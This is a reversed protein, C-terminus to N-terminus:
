PGPKFLEAVPLYQHWRRGFLLLLALVGAASVLVGAALDPVGLLSVIVAAGAIALVSLGVRLLERERVPQLGDLSSPSLLTGVNGATYQEAVTALLGALEELADHSAGTDLRSEAVRLRAVVQGAHRRLESRRPSLHPVTGRTRYAKLVGHEVIRLAASVAQMREARRPGGARHAEACAKIAEACLVVLVSRGASVYAERTAGATFALLLGWAYLGVVAQPGPHMPELEADIVVWAAYMVVTSVGLTAAISHVFMRLSNVTRRRIAVRVGLPLPWWDYGLRDLATRLEGIQKDSM